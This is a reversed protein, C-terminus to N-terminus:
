DDGGRTKDHKEAPTTGANDHIKKPGNDLKDLSNRVNDTARKIADRIPRETVKKDTAAIKGRSSVTNAADQASKKSYTPKEPAVAQNAGQQRAGQQEAGNDLSQVDDPSSSIDGVTLSLTTPAPLTAFDAPDPGHGTLTGIPGPLVVRGPTSSGPSSVGGALVVTPSAPDPNFNPGYGGHLFGDAIIAPARLGAELFQGATRLGFTDGIDEVAAVTASVGSIIPGLLGAVVSALAPNTMLVPRLVAVPIGLLANVAASPDGANYKELAYRLQPPMTYTVQELVAPVATQLAQTIALPTVPQSQVVQQIVTSLGPERTRLVTVANAVAIQLIFQYDDIPSSALRVAASEARIHPTGFHIAQPAAMPSAILVGVGVFAVAAVM